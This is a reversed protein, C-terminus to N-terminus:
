RSVILEKGVIKEPKKPFKANIREHPKRARKYPGLNHNFYMKRQKIISGLCQAM